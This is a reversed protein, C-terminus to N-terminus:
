PKYTFGKMNNDFEKAHLKVQNLKRRDHNLKEHNTEKTWNADLKLQEELNPRDTLIWTKGKQHKIMAEIFPVPFNTGQHGTDSFNLDMGESVQKATAASPHGEDPYLQYGFVSKWSDPWKSINHLNVYGPRETPQAQGKFKNVYQCPVM